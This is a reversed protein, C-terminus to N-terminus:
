SFQTMAPTKEIVASSTSGDINNNPDLIQPDTEPDLDPDLDLPYVIKIFYFIALTTM